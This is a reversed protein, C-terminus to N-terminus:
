FIKEGKVKDHIEEAIIKAEEGTKKAEKLGDVINKYAESAKLPNVAQDRTEAFM